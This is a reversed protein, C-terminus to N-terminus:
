KHRQRIYELYEDLYIKRNEDYNKLNLIYGDDHVCIPKEVVPVVVKYNHKLFEISQSADYFDFERFLDDRWRVDYQTAMLLGDIAEVEKLKDVDIKEYQDCLDIRTNNKGYMSGVRNVNWMVGDESMRPAGVIGVMGINEDSEFIDILEYLFYRDTIFVDQHMYIKYKADSAEMGENYGSTMSKADYITLLETEYGEPVYLRELYLMCEEFLMENNVCLIFCIKKNM